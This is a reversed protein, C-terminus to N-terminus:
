RERGREGGKRRAKQNRRKKREKQRENAREKKRACVGHGGCAQGVCGQEGCVGRWGRGGVWGVVFVFFCLRLWSLNWGVSFTFSDDRSKHIHPGSAPCTCTTFQWIPQSHSRGFRRLSKFGKSNCKECSVFLICCAGAEPKERKVPLQVLSNASQLGLQPLNIDLKGGCFFAPM